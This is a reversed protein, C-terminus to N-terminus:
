ENPSEHSRVLLVPVPTHRVVYEADSGMVMRRIGRRGHTGMVILDAPWAKAQQVIHAGIQGNIADECMAAVEVGAGRASAAAEKLLAQGGERLAELLQGAAFGTDYPYAMILENAVHLLRLSGGQNKALKIAEALGLTATPSGDLPVLINSYM